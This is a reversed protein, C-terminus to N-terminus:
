YRHVFDFFASFDSFNADIASRSGADIRGKDLASTGEARNEGFVANPQNEAAAGNAHHACDCLRHEIVTAFHGADDWLKEDRSLMRHSASVIQNDRAVHVLSLALHKFHRIGEDRHWASNSRKLFDNLLHGPNLQAAM